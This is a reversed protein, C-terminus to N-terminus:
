EELSDGLVMLSGTCHTGARNGPPIDAPAHGEDGVGDLASTLFLLTASNRKSGRQAKM